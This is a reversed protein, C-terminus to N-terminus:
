TAKLFDARDKALANVSVLYDLDADEARGMQAAAIFAKIRGDTQAAIDFIKKEDDTFLSWWALKVIPEGASAVKSALREAVKAQQDDRKEASSNSGFYYGAVGSANGGLFGLLIKFADSDPASVALWATLLLINLVVLVAIISRTDVRSPKDAM